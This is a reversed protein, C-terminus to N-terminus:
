KGVFPRAQVIWMTEGELVWEVDLPVGAPFLPIFQQVATVLRKARAETLIIESAPVPIEKLGGAPDFVLMTTDDSRSLIRTGDNTADFIIQEPVKQGEVVKM